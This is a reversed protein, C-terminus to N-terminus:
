STCTRALEEDSKANISWNRVHYSSGDDKVPRSQHHMLKPQTIVLDM